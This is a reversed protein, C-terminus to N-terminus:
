LSREREFFSLNPYSFNWYKGILIECPSDIVLVLILSDANTEGMDTRIPSNQKNMQKIFNSLRLPLVYRNSCFAEKGVKVMNSIQFHHNYSCFFKTIKKRQEGKKRKWEGSSVKALHYFPPLSLHSSCCHQQITDSEITQIESPVTM